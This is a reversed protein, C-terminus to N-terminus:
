NPFNLLSYVAIVFLIVAIAFLFESIILFIASLKLRLNRGNKENGSNTRLYAIHYSLSDTAFFRHSLSAGAALAFFLLSFFFLNMNSLSLKSTAGKELSFIILAGVGTMALLSLRLIESSFNIYRDALEFDPKYDKENIEKM